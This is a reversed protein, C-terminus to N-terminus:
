SGAGRRRRCQGALTGYLQELKRTRADISLDNEVRRRAAAVRRATAERNALTHEVAAATALPDRRPVLLGHVGHELLEGTGGAATAVVPVELAMAELLVTPTGEYDSTQVFVDMAQYLDAMDRRNGLFRCRHDIGLRRAQAQLGGRLSGEGVLLLRLQPRRSLLIAATELLLDFRKQRELRGVAGLVVDEPGIGLSSRIRSAADATRRFEAADVGNLLVQIRDRRGGWRLLADQIESSVAIAMPFSRALLKEAPYYLLRERWHHGTWGHLTAVPVIGESRALLFAFLAAKYDQADVVAVQRDRVVQRIAALVGRALISKQAIGCYDLNVEAARRDFDYAEDGCRYIGCVTMQVRRRNLRAATRLLVAEAGGGPGDISRLALVRAPADQV